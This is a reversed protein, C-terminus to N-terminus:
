TESRDVAEADDPDDAPTPDADEPKVRERVAKYIDSGLKLGFGTIVARVLTHM